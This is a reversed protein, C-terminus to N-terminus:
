IIHCDKDSDNNAIFMESPIGAYILLDPNMGYADKVNSSNVCMDFKKQLTLNSGVFGTYGVLIDM